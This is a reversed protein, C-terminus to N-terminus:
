VGEGTESYSAHLHTEFLIFFITWACRFHTYGRVYEDNAYYIEGTSHTKMSKEERRKGKIKGKSIKGKKKKISKM